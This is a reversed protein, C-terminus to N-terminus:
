SLSKRREYAMELLALCLDRFEYGALRAAKPLLSTDTFGPISNVELVYPDGKSNVKFDVRSFDRLGLTQHAKLAISKLDESLKESIPAPILYDTLGKTYKAKYDYFDRKPKLEIVPLAESGLIGVTCERGNIKEELFLSGYHKLSSDIKKLMRKSLQEVFFIGISSGECIPKVVYPPIWQRVVKGWNKKTIVQYRPTPIGSQVFLKKAKIKDFALASAKAESGIFFVRNDALRKQITGDEGGKGHLAIFALDIPKEKLKSHFGNAPDIMVADVGAEKLAEFVARGSRISIPREHSNGGLFVGVTGFHPTDYSTITKM